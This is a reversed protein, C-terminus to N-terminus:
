LLTMRLYSPLHTVKLAAQSPHFNPFLSLLPCSLWARHCTGRSGACPVWASLTPVWAICCSTSLLRGWLAKVWSKFNEAIRLNYSCKSKRQLPRTTFVPFKLIGGRSFRGAQKLLTPSPREGTVSEKNNLNIEICNGWLWDWSHSCVEESKQSGQPAM